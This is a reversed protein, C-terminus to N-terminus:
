TLTQVNKLFKIGPINFHTYKEFWEVLFVFDNVDLHYMKNFLDFEQQKVKFLSRIQIMEQRSRPLIRGHNCQTCIFGGDEQSITELHDKRHCIVCGDVFPAIGELQILYSMLLCAHNYAKDDGTHFCTLCQEFLTYILKDTQVRSVIQALVFCISSNVLNSLISYYNKIVNGYYLLSLGNESKEITYRVVSFPQTIMKNKSSQKQIGKALIAIVGEECLLKIIGDKERYDQVSLVIGEVETTPKM